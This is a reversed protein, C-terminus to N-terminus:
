TTKQQGKLFIVFGSVTGLLFLTVFFLQIFFLTEEVETPSFIAYGLPITVIGVALSIGAVQLFTKLMKIRREALKPEMQDHFIKTKKKLVMWALYIWIGVPIAVVVGM